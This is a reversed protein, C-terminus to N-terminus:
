CLSSDYEKIHIHLYWNYFDIRLKRKRELLNKITESITHHIKDLVVYTHKLKKCSQCQDQDEKKLWWTQFSLSFFWFLTLNSELNQDWFYFPFSSFFLYLNNINDSSRRSCSLLLLCCVAFLVAICCCLQMQFLM